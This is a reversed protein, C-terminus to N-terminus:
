ENCHSLIIVFWLYASNLTIRDFSYFQIWPKIMHVNWTWLGTKLLGTDITTWQWDTIMGFARRVDYLRANLSLITASASATSFLESIALSYPMLSDITRRQLFSWSFMKLPSIFSDAFRLVIPQKVGFYGAISWLSSSHNESCLLWPSFWTVLKNVCGHSCFM